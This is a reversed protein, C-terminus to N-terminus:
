PLKGVYFLGFIILRPEKRLYFRTEAIDEIILPYFYRRYPPDRWNTSFGFIKWSILRIGLSNMSSIDQLLTIFYVWKLSFYIVRHFQDSVKLSNKASSYRKVLTNDLKCDKLSNRSNKRTRMQMRPLSWLWEEFSTILLGIKKM